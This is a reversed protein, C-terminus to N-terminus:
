DFNGLLYEVSCHFIEAMREITHLRPTTKNNTWFSVVTQSVDLEDALEAQTMHYYGLQADIKDGIGIKKSKVSTTKM